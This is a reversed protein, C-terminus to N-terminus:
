RRTKTRLGIALGALLTFLGAALVGASWGPSDWWENKDTVFWLAAGTNILGAYYFSKRQKLRSAYAIVISLSLYLWAYRISYEGTHNLWALPELVAFPAITYLLWTASRAGPLETRDMAWACGFYALGNLTMAALTDLLTPASVEAPQFPSMSLGLLAFTRGDIAHLESAIVLLLGASVFLPPAFWGRRFRDALWGATGAFLVAPVLRVALADWRGEEVIARLGFEGLLALHLLVAFVTASAALTMTRTRWALLGAWAMAGLSAIQMQRNSPAARGIWGLVESPNEPDVRALGAEQLLVLAFPAALAASALLFAVAAAKRNGVFLRWGGFALAACPFGLFLFPSLLGQIADNWYATLYLVGGCLALFAGLYLSIQSVGLVRSRLFWDDEPVELNRYAEDLHDAEHPHIWELRRWEAIQARHPQIRRALISLYATPRATVPKGELWRQLDQAMAQATAYRNAPEREMAKLAIAQLPEPVSPDIETPLSVEGRRIAELLAELRNEDYPRSGCLMEYLLVGLSYVDVRADIPPRSPDLLEPAMYAPTGTGHGIDSEGRSLGFDLIKPSLRADVLINAPKLDRHQIGLEHARHIADCIDAMLRARQPQELSRSIKDLPFGDVYEMLLVPPDAAKRFEFIRVIRPDEFLALSRAERLFDDLGSRLSGDPRVVKAAVTRGLQLDVLKYVEGGGGRGIREVTRFGDFSPLVSSDDADGRPHALEPFASEMKEYAAISARLQPLLDPRDACLGELPPPDNGGERLAIWRALLETVTERDSM